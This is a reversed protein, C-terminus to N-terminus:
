HRRKQIGMRLRARLQELLKRYANESMLTKERVVARAYPNLPMVQFQDINDTYRVVFSPIKAADALAILAKISPHEFTLGRANWHKYEILACPRGMDYEILPFDLDTAPFDWGLSRHWQSLKEDRFGLYEEKVEKESM